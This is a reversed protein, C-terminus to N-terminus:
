GRAAGVERIMARAINHLQVESAGEFIRFLRTDRYM